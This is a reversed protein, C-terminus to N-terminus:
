PVIDLAHPDLTKESQFYIASFHPAVDSSLEGSHRAHNQRPFPLLRLPFPLIPKSM